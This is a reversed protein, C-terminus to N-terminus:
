ADAVLRPISAKDQLLVAYTCLISYYNQRRYIQLLAISPLLTGSLYNLLSAAQHAASTLASRGKYHYDEIHLRRM